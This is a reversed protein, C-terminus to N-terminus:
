YPYSSQDEMLLLNVSRRPYSGRIGVNLRNSMGMDGSVNIGPVRKLIEESGLPQIQKIEKSSITINSGQYKPNYNTQTAYIVVESIQIESSKLFINALQINENETTVEIDIKEIKYGLFDIYLQHSGIKVNEFQFYGKNDTNIKNDRDLSIIANQMPKGDTENLVIGNITAKQAYNANFVFIGLLIFIYFKFNINM